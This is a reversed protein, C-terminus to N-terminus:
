WEAEKDDLAHRLDLKKELDRGALQIVAFLSTTPPADDDAVNGVIIRAAM